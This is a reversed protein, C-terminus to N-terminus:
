VERHYVRFRRKVLARGVSTDLRIDSLLSGESDYRIMVPFELKTKHEVTAGGQFSAQFECITGSQLEGLQWSLIRKMEDWYSDIALPEHGDGGVHSVTAKEGEVGDPVAMLLVVNMLPNQNRPNVRLQIMVQYQNNPSQFTTKVLMPVPRLDSSCSYEVM